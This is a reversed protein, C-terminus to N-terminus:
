LGNELFKNRRKNLIRRVKNIDRSVSNIPITTRQSLKTISCNEEIYLEFLKRYYWDIKKLEKRVWEIDVDEIIPDDIVDIKPTFESFKHKGYTYYYPSSSSFFNNKVIKSFFYLKEKDPIEKLRQNTLFQEVCIQFLDLDNKKSIANVIKKMEKINNNIWDDIM